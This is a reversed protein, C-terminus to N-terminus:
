SLSRPYPIQRRQAKTAEDTFPSVYRILYLFQTANMHIHESYGFASLKRLLM